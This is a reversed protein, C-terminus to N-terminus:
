DMLEALISIWKASSPLGVHRNIVQGDKFVLLTPISAIDYRDALESCEDINIKVTKYNNDALEEAREMLPAIARCPGCWPAWFDVLVPVESQLVVSDFEAVSVSKVM